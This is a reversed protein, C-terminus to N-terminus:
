DSPPADGEFLKACLKREAARLHGNFTPQTIDLDAAVEEGTRDRPWEFYGSHYATQLTELQRQTLSETLAAEFAESSRDSRERDRRAVLETDPYNSELQDVFTRVGVSHPLEVVVNTETDAIRITRVVAGCEVLTSPITAGAVSVEFRNEDDESGGGSLLTVGEVRTSESAAARVTDATAGTATVFVRATGTTQPVIGEFEFRCGTERALQVLPDDANQIDLELEVVSDSLLARRTDIFNMANAITEGLERLVSQSLDDFADPETDYVTLVGYEMGDHELPISVVSQLDRALAAKRWPADRLDAAVNSVLTTDGTAATKAAPDGDGEPGTALSVADLYGQDDGAWRRPAVAEDGTDGIWAFTFRGDRTLLGCVAQEVAERTTAEVLAQDIDRIIDNTRNLNQLQQNRLELEREQERLSEERGVRDLTAEATAALHDALRQTQQDFEGVNESLIALVGHDSLPIWIGSRLPTDRRYVDDSELIDDFTLTEDNIFSNWAIATDKPTFSPPEGGFIDDLRETTATPQLANETDDFLYVAINDLDLVDRAADVVHRSVDRKTETQTLDRSVQHLNTLAREFRKRETNDRIIGVFFQDGDHEYESFSVALPIEHGDAHKGPLELYEWDLTQEGTRLYRQIASRHRDQLSDPMLMTLPEGIIEDPEYGFVSEVVPNVYQVQSQADISVIVDSATEAVTEYQELEHEREKREAIDRFYVSMGTESPYVTAEVWFELPEFYLEYSQPEQTEMATHFSEWVADEEAAEPFREWLNEGLLEEESHQLLEEARDNVHTFRFEEDLAYFADSVRAFIENLEEKMRKYESIDRVVGVRGYSGDELEFPTVQTRVTVLSGDATEVKTEVPAIERGGDVAEAVKASLESNLDDTHVLSANEGLLEERDYGTLECYADNVMTFRSDADLAYIGDDVTEVIRSHKQLERERRKQETVDRTLAVQVTTGDPGPMPAAHSEMHRRTGDLGVIDFELTGSEGECVRENFERFEQRHEPAILDYVCEGVVSSAADAEVMDLGAPNMQLLTGDPGVTKICEPTTEVLTSLHQESERLEEVYNRRELESGVWDGLLEVFTVDWDTFEESRAEMGYFCFTGYVEDSAYVPTGLYCSIGWTPDALEPADEDVDRIVLTEESEVVHRCNPLEELPVTEGAQLDGDNPADIAEFRYDDTVHSFTAFDTGVAERVVELLDDVREIFPRDGDAIIEYARRLHRERQKIVVAEDNADTGDGDADTGDNTAAEADDLAVAITEGLTALLCQEDDGFGDARDAALYLVGYVEDEHVLPVVAVSQYGHNRAHDGWDASPPDDLLGREIQVGRTEVASRVLRNRPSDDALPVAEPADATTGAAADLTVREKAPDYSGLWAFAYLGSEAFRECIRQRLENEPVSLVLERTVDEKVESM